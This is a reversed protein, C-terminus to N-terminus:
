YGPIESLLQSNRLGEGNASLYNLLGWLENDTRYLHLCYLMYGKGTGKKLQRYMETYNKANTDALIM